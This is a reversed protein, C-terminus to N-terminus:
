ENKANKARLEDLMRTLATKSEIRKERWLTCLAERLSKDVSEDRILKQFYDELIEDGTKM